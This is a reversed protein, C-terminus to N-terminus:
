AIGILTQANFRPTRVVMQVTKGRFFKRLQLFQLGTAAQNAVFRLQFHQELTRKKGHGGIRLAWRKIANQQFDFRVTFAPGQNAGYGGVAM